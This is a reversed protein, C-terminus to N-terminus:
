KNAQQFYEVTKKLGQQLTFRPKWGLEKLIKNYSIVSRRQEGAKASGHIAPLDGGLATDINQYLQIVNTEIGTGVNYFGKVNEQLALVNANVVDEVYVYDRTQLGDGFITPSKGKLLKSVFIAVVGAEGHPNQRPGYVNAYRLSVAQIGYTNQYFQLYKEGLLKTIGYPSTPNTPHNEDAPYSIQEGYIAGGSSAFIIKKIKHERAKELLNLTGIGNVQCDYIPDSVSKRVDMQAAHHSIVEPAFESFLKELNDRIDLQYLRTNNSLNDKNGTVLNDLVAVEHGLKLYADQIHSAIFGAGGTILIKM